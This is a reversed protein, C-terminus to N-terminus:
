LLRAGRRGRRQAEDEDDDAPGPQHGSQADRNFTDLSSDCDCRALRSELWENRDLIEDMRERADRLEEFLAGLTDQISPRKLRDTEEYRERLLRLVEEELWLRDEPHIRVWKEDTPGDDPEEAPM